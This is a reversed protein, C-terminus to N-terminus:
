VTMRQHKSGLRTPLFAVALVLCAELIINLFGPKNFDHYWHVYFHNLVAKVYFRFYHSDLNRLNVGLCYIKITLRSSSIKQVYTM